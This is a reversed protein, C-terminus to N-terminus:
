AERIYGVPHPSSLVADLVYPKPSQGSQTTRKLIEASISRHANDTLRDEVAADRHLASRAHDRRDVALHEVTKRAGKCISRRASRSLRIQRCEM